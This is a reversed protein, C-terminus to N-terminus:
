PRLNRLLARTEANAAQVDRLVQSVPAHHGANLARAIQNLNNGIASLQRSLSTM